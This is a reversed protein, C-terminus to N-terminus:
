AKIVTEAQRRQRLPLDCHVCKQTWPNRAGRFWHLKVHFLQGCRPCRSVLVLAFAAASSLLWANAAIEFSAAPALSPFLSGLLRDALYVGPLAALFVIWMGRRRYLIRDLGPEEDPTAPPVLDPIALGGYGVMRGM